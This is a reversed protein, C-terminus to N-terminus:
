KLISPASFLVSTLGLHFFALSGSMQHLRFFSLFLASIFSRLFVVPCRRRIKASTRYDEPMREDRGQKQGKKPEMLHRTTRDPQKQGKEAGDIRLHFSTKSFCKERTFM